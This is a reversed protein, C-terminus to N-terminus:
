GGSPFDITEHVVPKQITKESTTEQIFNRLFSTRHIIARGRAFLAKRHLETPYGKHQELGYGPFSCTLRQTMRDRTVKAIISAAAISLSHDEGKNFYLTHGWPADFPTDATPSELFPLNLPMADVLVVDPVKYCLTVQIVARRMAALTAQYISTADIARADVGATAYWSNQTLWTYAAEREKLSMKKSDAIRPPASTWRDRPKLIAAGAVVPGALCARGVEDVGCILRGEQFALDEFFQPAFPVPIKVLAM